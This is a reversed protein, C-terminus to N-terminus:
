AVLRLKQISNNEPAGERLFFGSSVSQVIEVDIHRDQIPGTLVVNILRVAVIAIIDYVANAGTGSYTDYVPMYVIPGNVNQLNYTTSSSSTQYNCAEQLPCSAYDCQWENGNKSCSGGGSCYNQCTPKNPFTSSSFQSSIACANLACSGDAWVGMYNHSCAFSADPYVYTACNPCNTCTTEGTGTGPCINPATATCASPDKAVVQDGFGDYTPGVEAEFFLENFSDILSGGRIGTDGSVPLVGSEPIVFDQDYGGGAIWGKLETNSNGGGNLDLWGFNGQFSEAYPYIQVMSGIDFLGDNNTDFLSRRVAYPMMQHRAKVGVVRPDLAAVAARRIDVQSVGLLRGFFSPVGGAQVTADRAAIVRVANVPVVGASFSENTFDFRGFEINSDPVEVAQGGIAYEGAFAAILQRAQTQDTQSLVSGGALGASDAANQLIGAAITLYGVDIALPSMILASGM